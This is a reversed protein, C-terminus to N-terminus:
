TEETGTKRSLYEMGRCVAWSSIMGILFGGLVDTPYHVGVYLRSIAILAALVVFCVGYPKPMKRLYVLAVAFSASTHGSPFSYDHPAAILIKLGEIAEYPRIRAVLPKLILNAILFNVALSLLAALGIYRTRKPILLIVSVAIWFWGQNVLSTIFRWFGNMFDIRIYEQIFLLIGADLSALWEM